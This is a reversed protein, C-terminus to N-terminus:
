SRVFMPMILAISRHDDNKFEVLVARSGGSRRFRAPADGLTQGYSGLWQIYFPDLAFPKNEYEGDVADTVLDLYRPFTMDDRGQVSFSEDVDAANCITMHIGTSTKRVDVMVHAGARLKRTWKVFPTLDVNKFFVPKSLPGAKGDVLINVFEHVLLRFGDAVVMRLNHGNAQMMVHKCIDRGYAKDPETAATIQALTSAFTKAAKGDMIDLVAVPGPRANPKSDQVFWVKAKPTPKATPQTESVPAPKPKAPAPTPTPTPTVTAKPKPKVLGKVYDVAKQAAAAARVVLRNDAKIANKWSQIYAAHNQTTSSIGAENCLFAAGFEATLEEVGYDHQGFRHSPGTLQRNLRDAHGTSHVLEHFLTANYEDVGDFASLVPLHISDSSPRYYARDGGDPHISPPNPMGDVIHNVNAAVKSEKLPKPPVWPKVDLGECQEVNFLTYTRMFLATKTEGPNDKDKVDYEKWFVALSGKEGRRVNGSLKLARGFTLWRPDSYDAAGLLVRNLGSYPRGDISQPGVGGAVAWPKQWPVTGSELMELIRDTVRQYSDIKNRAM